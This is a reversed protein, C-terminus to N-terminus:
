WYDSADDEPSLLEVVRLGPEAAEFVPYGDALGALESMCQQHALLGSKSCWTSDLSPLVRLKRGTRLFYPEWQAALQVVEADVIATLAQAMASGAGQGRFRGRTYMAELHINLVVTRQDEDSADEDLSAESLTEDLFELVLTFAFYSTPRNQENALVLSYRSVQESRSIGELPFAKESFRMGHYYLPLDKFFICDANADFVEHDFTVPWEHRQDSQFLRALQAPTKCTQAPSLVTFQTENMDSDFRSFTRKELSLEPLHHHKLSLANLASRLEARTPNEHQPWPLGDDDSPDTLGVCPHAAATLTAISSNM